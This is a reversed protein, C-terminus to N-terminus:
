TPRKKSLESRALKVALLAETLALEAKEAVDEANTEWEPLESLMRVYRGLDTADEKVWRAKQEIATLAIKRTSENRWTIIDSTNMRNIEM